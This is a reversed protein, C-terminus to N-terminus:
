RCCGSSRCGAHPHLGARLGPRAAHQARRGACAQALSNWAVGCNRGGRLAPWAGSRSTPSRPRRVAGLDVHGANDQFASVLMCVCRSLVRLGPHRRRRRRDRRGHVRRRQVLRAAGLRLRRAHADRRPMSWRAGAWRQSRGGARGAALWCGLGVRGTSWCAVLLRPGALGAVLLPLLLPLLLLLWIGPVRSRLLAPTARCPGARSAMGLCPWSRSCASGCAVAPGGSSM